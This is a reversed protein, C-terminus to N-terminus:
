LAPVAYASGAYRRTKSQPDVTAANSYEGISNGSFPDGSTVKGLGKFADIWAKVLPNQVVGPFSVQVSGSTGRYEENVWDIGFHDLTEQDTPQM